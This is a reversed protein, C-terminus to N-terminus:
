IRSFDSEVRAAMFARFFIESFRRIRPSDPFYGEIEFPMVDTAGLSQSHQGVFFKCVTGYSRFNDLFPHFAGKRCCGRHLFDELDEEM